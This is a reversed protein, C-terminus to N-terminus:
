GPSDHAQEKARARARLDALDIGSWIRGHASFLKGRAAARAYGAYRDPVRIVGHADPSWRHGDPHELGAGGDESHIEFAM